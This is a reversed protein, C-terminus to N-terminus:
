DIANSIVGWASKPSVTGQEVGQKLIDVLYELSHRPQQKPATVLDTLEKVERQLATILAEHADLRTGAITAVTAVREERATESM